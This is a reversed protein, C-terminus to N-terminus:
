LAQGFVRKPVNAGDRFIGVLLAQKEGAGSVAEKIRQIIAYM